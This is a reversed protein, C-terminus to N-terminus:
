VSSLVWKDIADFSRDGGEYIIKRGRSFLIITPYGDIQHIKAEEPHAQCDVKRVTVGANKNKDFKQTLKEWVPMLNKCHPCWPAYFLVLEHSSSFSENVKTSRNKLMFWLTLVVVLVIGVHFPTLTYGFLEM